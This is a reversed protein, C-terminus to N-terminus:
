TGVQLRDIRSGFCVCWDFQLSTSGILAVLGAQLSENRILRIGFASRGRDTPPALLCEARRVYIRMRLMSLFHITCELCRVGAEWEQVAGSGVSGGGRLSAAFAMRALINGAVACAGTPEPLLEADTGTFLFAAIGDLGFFAACSFCTSSIFILCRAWGASGLSLPFCTGM